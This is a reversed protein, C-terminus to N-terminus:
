MTGGSETYNCLVEMFFLNKEKAKQLVEELDKSNPGAPKECLVHKGNELAKLCSDKHNANVTGVYIVDIEPDCFLEDYSGYSKEIELKDAFESAREKSRAAVAKICHHKADLTKLALCFDFSIKGAGAIGWRLCSM